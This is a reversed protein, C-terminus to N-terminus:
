SVTLWYMKLIQTIESYVFRAFKSM